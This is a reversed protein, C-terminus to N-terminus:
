DKLTWIYAKKSLPFYCKDSCDVGDWITEHGTADSWGDVEFVLIGKHKFLLLATPTKFTQDPEGFTKTLYSIMTNVKYIYWEGSKGSVTQGSIYPVKYGTKNLVYSLRIACANEFRGQGEPVVNINYNVKGGIKTGVGSVTKGVDGYVEKFARRADNLKPRKFSM